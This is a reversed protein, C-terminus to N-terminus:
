MLEFSFKRCCVNNLVPRYKYEALIISNPKNLHGKFLCEDNTKIMPMYSMTEVLLIMPMYSMVEVLLIIQYSILLCLGSKAM